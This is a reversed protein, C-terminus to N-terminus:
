AASGLANKREEFEEKTIIGSDLLEKLKDLSVESGQGETSSTPIISDLDLQPNNYREIADKMMPFKKALKELAEQQRKIRGEPSFDEDYKQM